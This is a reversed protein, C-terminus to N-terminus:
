AMRRLVLRIQGTEEVAEEVLDFGQEELRSRTAHYAYRQNLKETFDQQNLGRVGFWDAVLEYGTERKRLGVDYSGKLPIKIDVPMGEGLFGRVTLGEADEYSFGLDSLTKLVLDKDKMQTKIRSFHSM